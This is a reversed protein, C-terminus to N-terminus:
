ILDYVLLPCITSCFYCFQCHVLACLGWWKFKSNQGAWWTLKTFLMSHKSIIFISILLLQLTQCSGTALCQGMVGRVRVVVMGCAGGVAVEVTGRAVAWMPQTLAHGNGIGIGVLWAVDGNRVMAMDSNCVMAMDGAKLLGQTWWM